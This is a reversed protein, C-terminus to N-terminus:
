ADFAPNAAGTGDKEGSRIAAKLTIPAATTGDPILAALKGSVTAQNADDPIDSSVLLQGAAPTAGVYLQVAGYEAGSVYGTFNDKLLTLGAGAAELGTKLQKAADGLQTLSSVVTPVAAQLNGLDGSVKGLDVAVQNLKKGASKTRKNLAKLAKNQKKDAKTAAGAPGAVLGCVLAVALVSLLLRRAQM